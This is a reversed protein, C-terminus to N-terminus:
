LKELQRAVDLPLNPRWKLFRAPVGGVVAYAPVEANVVAGAAVVAGKRIVAGGLITVNGGIWADDEILIKAPVHGQQWIPMDTRSFAHDSARMLVGPGILVDNGILIEGGITANLSVSSNLAVRDGITIQGGGDAYLSCSRGCFFNRGIRIADAGLVHIGSSITSPSGLHALRSRLYLTRLKGGSAGPLASVVAEFYARIEDGAKGFLDTKRKKVNSAPTPENM